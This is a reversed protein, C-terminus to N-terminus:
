NGDEGRTWTLAKEGKNTPPCAAAAKGPSVAHVAAVCMPITWNGSGVDLQETRSRKQERPFMNQSRRQAWKGVNKHCYYSSRLETLIKYRGQGRAQVCHISVERINATDYEQVGCPVLFSVSPPLHKSAMCLNCTRKFVVVIPLNKSAARYFHVFKM